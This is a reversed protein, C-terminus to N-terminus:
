GEDDHDSERKAANDVSFGEGLIKHVADAVLRLRVPSLRYRGGEIQLEVGDAVKVRTWITPPEAAARLSDGAQAARTGRGKGPLRQEIEGLSLGQAQLEKLDLIRQLHGATYYHGRGAGPPPPVLKRQVYFHIARRSIGTLEALEGISYRRKENM